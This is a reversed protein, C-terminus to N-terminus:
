GLFLRRILAAALFFIESAIFRRYAAILAPVLFYSEDLGLFM